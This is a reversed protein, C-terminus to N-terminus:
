FHKGNEYYNEKEIDVFIVDVSNIEDFEFSKAKLIGETLIKAVLNKANKGRDFWEVTVYVTDKLLNGNCFIDGDGLAGISFTIWDAPCKIVQSLSETLEASLAKVKPIDLGTVRIHPM